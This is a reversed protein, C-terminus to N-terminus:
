GNANVEYNFVGGYPATNGYAWVGQGYVFRVGAAMYIRRLRCRAPAVNQLRLVLADAAARTIPVNIEAWYDAWEVGSYGYRWGRGYPQGRGTLDMGVYPERFSATGTVASSAGVGIRFTATGATGGGAVICSLIDGPQPVYTTVNVPAGNARYALTAGAPQNLVIFLANFVLNDPNTEVIVSSIVRGSTPINVQQGIIQRAAAAAFSILGDAVATIAGGSANFSWGSPVTGPTGAVAGLFATNTLALLAAPGTPAVLGYRPLDQAEIIMSGDYGAAQLALKMGALTGKHRHVAVAAALVSRKVAESWLPDWDDVSLSWALWPLFAAPITAPNWMLRAPSSLDAIRAATQSVAIEMESANPPLLHLTM